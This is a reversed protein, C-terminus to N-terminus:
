QCTGTAPDHPLARGAARGTPEGDSVEIVGNVVVTRVGKAFLTPEAYTARASYAAPDFVVIDAFHGAKLRGREKLGMTDATLATSREIFARLDIVHDTMVYQAYKRAFTGYLRPHGPSADSSTMVWPQRMFMAIDAESQNFSVVAPNDHRIVSVAAAVPDLQRAAAIDALTKGSIDEPGDTILLKAPGGRRRLNEEMEPRLRTMVSPDALRKRLAEIGGDQAWRPILSAVLSTGSASWPYQDATVNQGTRRATEIRAIIQPAQGQVDAGLAKIHAIHVPLGAERGIRLAEDIAGALGITYSSEDRIHSDYFGGAPAAARAVAIVEDTSAFSQPAYFLGTSFGIAGQCMGKSVLAQMKTIEAPTAPRDAKGIVEGRVAGFGIFTAYNIGVPRQKAWGLRTAVDTGGFGDNGIITTTVGQLLFPLILREVANGASLHNDMHSHADIFGPAVVMGRADITRRARMPAHPGVYLIREGSIAIDGVFPTASGTYLTGGRILLEATDAATAAGATLLLFMSAACAIRKTTM